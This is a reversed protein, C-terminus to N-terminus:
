KSSLVGSSFAWHAVPVAKTQCFMWSGWSAFCTKRMKHLCFTVSRLNLQREIATYFPCSAWSDTGSDPQYGSPLANFHMINGNRRQLLSWSNVSYRTHRIPGNDHVGYWLFGQLSNRRMQCLTRESALIVQTTNLPWLELGSWFFGWRKVM